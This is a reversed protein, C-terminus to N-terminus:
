PKILDESEKYESTKIHNKIKELWYITIGIAFVTKGKRQKCLSCFLTVKGDIVEQDLWSYIRFWDQDPVKCEHSRIKTVPKETDEIDILYNKM